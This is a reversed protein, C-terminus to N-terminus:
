VKAQENLSSARKVRSWPHRFNTEMTSKFLSVEVPMLFWRTIFGRITEVQAENKMYKLCFVVLQQQVSKDDINTIKPKRNFETGDIFSYLKKFNIFDQHVELKEESTLAEFGECMKKAHVIEGFGNKVILQILGQNYTDIPVQNESLVRSFVRVRKEEESEVKSEQNSLDMTLVYSIIQLM